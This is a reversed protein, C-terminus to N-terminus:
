AHEFKITRIGFQPIPLEVWSRGTKNTHVPVIKIPRGDLEVQVAKKVNFGLYVKVVPSTAAANFFRVLLANGTCTMAAVEVGKETQLLSRQGEGAANTAILPENWKTGEAWLGAEDWRGKHPLLAYKIETPGDITYNRYFIGNGSYQITVGLPFNEGHAYSTTHDCFLAMGYEGNGAEVDVWNLLV